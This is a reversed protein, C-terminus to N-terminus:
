DVHVDFKQVRNNGWDGVYLNGQQDLSLGLPCSFQHSQQGQGGGGVIVTGKTAGPAYRVIRHNWSDAVYINGSPDVIVGQPNSLQSNNNGEGQGGAVIVGEKAGKTWKMVRNNNSDSVYVSLDEDVYIYGPSNLQNLNDGRGNGGAVLTGTTEGKAWRRVENKECDSVYLDGSNDMTLHSCAIHAILTQQSKSHKRPWRLVRRNGYDCIIFSDNKKDLVVDTPLNLQDKRSGKGNGGAVVQGHHSGLKWRVVRDNGYDAIYVSQEDEDVCLGYPWYLQNTQSGEGYGGAITFGNQEWKTNNQISKSSTIKAPSVVVSIKHILPTPDQQISVNCLKDLKEALQKLKQNFQQLDVENFDNEQRIRRLHDSLKALNVEIHHVNKTTHQVLLQRCESATQQIIKISDEEWQDIQKVLLHIQPHNMQENLTQRFLDRTHEIHDLQKNLEQRHDTLHDYCFLQLCGECRVARKEKGCTFCRSKGNGAAM